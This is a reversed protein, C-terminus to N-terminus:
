LPTKWPPFFPKFTLIESVARYAQGHCRGHRRKAGADSNAVHIAGSPNAGSVWPKAKM